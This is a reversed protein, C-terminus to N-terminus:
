SDSYFLLLSSVVIPIFIHRCISEGQM